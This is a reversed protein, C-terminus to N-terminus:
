HKHPQVDVSILIIVTVKSRARKPISELDPILTFLELVVAENEPSSEAGDNEKLINAIREFKEAITFYQRKGEIQKKNEEM